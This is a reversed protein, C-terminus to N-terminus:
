ARDVTVAARSPTRVEVVSNDDGTIYLSDLFDLLLDELKNEKFPKASMARLDDVFEDVLRRTKRGAFQHEIALQVATWQMVVLEM